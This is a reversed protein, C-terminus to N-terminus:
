LVAQPEHQELREADILEPVRQGLVVARRARRRDRTPDLIAALLDPISRAPTTMDLQRSANVKVDKESGTQHATSNAAAATPWAASITALWLQHYPRARGRLTPSTM